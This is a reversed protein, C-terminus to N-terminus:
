EYFREKRKKIFNFLIVKTFRDKEKLKPPDKNLM